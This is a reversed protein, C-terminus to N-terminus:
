NLRLSSFLPSPNSRSGFHLSCQKNSALISETVRLISENTRSLMPRAYAAGLSLIIFVPTTDFPEVAYCNSSLYVADSNPTPPTMYSCKHFKLLIWLFLNQVKKKVDLAYMLLAAAEPQKRHTTSM